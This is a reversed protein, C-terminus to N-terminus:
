PCPAGADNWTDVRKLFEDYDGPEAPPPLYKGVAYPQEIAWFLRADEHFHDHRLEPTPLNALVRDCTEAATKAKWDLDLDHYPAKWETEHFPDGHNDVPILTHCSNCTIVHGNPDYASPELQADTYEVFDDEDYHHHEALKAITGFGHCDTCRDSQFTPYLMEEFYTKASTSNADFTVSPSSIRVLKDNAIIPNGNEDIGIIEPITLPEHEFVELEFTWPLTGTTLINRALVATIIYNYGGDGKLVIAWYGQLPDNPAKGYSVTPGPPLIKGNVSLTMSLGQQAVIDKLVDLSLTTRWTLYIQPPILDYALPWECSPANACYFDFSKPEGVQLQLKVNEFHIPDIEVPAAEVVTPPLPEYFGSVTYSDPDLTNLVNEMYDVEPVYPDRPGLRDDLRALRIQHRVAMRQISTGLRETSDGLPEALVKLFEPLLEPRAAIATALDALNTPQQDAPLGLADVIHRFRRFFAKSGIRAHHREAITQARELYRAEIDERPDEAALVSSTWVTVLAIFVCYKWWGPSMGCNRPNKMM